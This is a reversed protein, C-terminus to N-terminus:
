EEGFARQRAREIKAEYERRSEEAKRREDATEERPAPAEAGRGNLREPFIGQWGNMVSREVVAAAEEPGLGELKRLALERARPTMRTRKPGQARQDEYALWAERFRPTDLQRHEGLWAELLEGPEPAKPREKRAKGPSAVRSRPSAPGGASPSSAEGQM